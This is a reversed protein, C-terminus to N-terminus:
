RALWIEHLMQVGNIQSAPLHKWPEPTLQKYSKHGPRRDISEAKHGMNGDMLIQKIREMNELSPM